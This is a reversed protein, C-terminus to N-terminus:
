KLVMREAEKIIQDIKSKTLQRYKQKINGKVTKKFSSVKYIDGLPEALEYNIGFETEDVESLSEDWCQPLSEKSLKEFQFKNLQPRERILKNRSSM